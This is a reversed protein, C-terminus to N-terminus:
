TVLEKIIDFEENHYIILWVTFFLLATSINVSIMIVLGPMPKSDMPTKAAKM